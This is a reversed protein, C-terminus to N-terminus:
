TLGRRAYNLYAKNGTRIYSCFHSYVHNSVKKWKYKTVDKRFDASLHDIFEGHRMKIFYRSTEKTLNMVQKGCSFKSEEKSFDNNNDLYWTVYEDQPIIFEENDLVM